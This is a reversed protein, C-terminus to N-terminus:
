STKWLEVWEGGQITYRYYDLGNASVRVLIEGRAYEELLIGPIELPHAKGIFGGGYTDSQRYIRLDGTVAIGRNIGVSYYLAALGM